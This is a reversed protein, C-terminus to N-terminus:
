SEPNLNFGYCNYDDFFPAFFSWLKKNWEAKLEKKCDLQLCEMFLCHDRVNIFMLNMLVHVAIVDLGFIYNLGAYNDSKSSDIPSHTFRPSIGVVTDPLPLDKVKQGPRSFNSAFCKNTALTLKTATVPSISDILKNSKCRQSVVTTQKVLHNRDLSHSNAARDKLTPQDVKITIDNRFIPFIEASM